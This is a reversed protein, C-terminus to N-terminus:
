TRWTLPPGEKTSPHLMSLPMDLRVAISTRHQPGSDPATGMLPAFFETSLSIAAVSSAGPGSRADAVDRADGVDCCM